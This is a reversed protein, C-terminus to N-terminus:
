TTDKRAIIRLNFVIPESLFILMSDNISNESSHRFTMYHINETYMHMFWGGKAIAIKIRQERHM